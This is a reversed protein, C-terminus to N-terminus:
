WSIFSFIWLIAPPNWISTKNLFKGRSTCYHFYSKIIRCRPMVRFYTQSPMFLPLSISRKIILTICRELNLYLSTQTEPFYTLLIPSCMSFEDEGSVPFTQPNPPNLNLCDTQTHPLSCACRRVLLYVLVDVCRSRCGQLINANGSLSDYTNKLASCSTGRIQEAIGPCSCKQPISTSYTLSHIVFWSCCVTQM